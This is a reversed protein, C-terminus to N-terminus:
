QLPSAIPYAHSDKPDNRYQHKENNMGATGKTDAFFYKDQLGIQPLTMNFSPWIAM